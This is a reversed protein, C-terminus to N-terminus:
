SAKRDKKKVFKWMEKSSFKVRITAYPGQYIDKEKYWGMDNEVKLDLFLFRYGIDASLGWRGKEFFDWAGNLDFTIYNVDFQEGDIEGVFIAGGGTGGIRFDGFKLRGGLAIFPMPFWQDGGLKIVQGLVDTTQYNTSMNLALIGIGIGLDHQRQILGFNTTLVFMTMKLDGSVVSGSDIQIGDRTIDSPTIFSGDYTGRSGGFELNWKKFRGGLAIALSPSYNDMGIEEYDMDFKYGDSNRYGSMSGNLGTYNFRVGGGIEWKPREIQAAVVTSVILLLFLLTTKM